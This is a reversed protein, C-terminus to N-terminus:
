GDQPLPAIPEAPVTVQTRRTWASGDWYRQQGPLVPDAYWGAVAAEAPAPADHEITRAHDM